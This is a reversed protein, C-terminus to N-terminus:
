LSKATEAKKRDERRRMLEDMERTLTFELSNNILFISSVSNQWMCGSDCDTKGFKDKLGQLLTDRDFGVLNYTIEILRKQYFTLSLSFIQM